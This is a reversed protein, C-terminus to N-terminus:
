AGDAGMLQKWGQSICCRNFNEPLLQLKLSGAVHQGLSLSVSM